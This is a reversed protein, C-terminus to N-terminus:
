NNENTSPHLCSPHSFNSPFCLWSGYSGKTHPLLLIPLSTLGSAVAVLQFLAWPWWQLTAHSDGESRKYISSSLQLCLYLSCPCQSGIPGKLGTLCVLSSTWNFSFRPSCSVKLFAPFQNHDAARAGEPCLKACLLSRELM